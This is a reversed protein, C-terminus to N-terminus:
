AKLILHQQWRHRCRPISVDTGAKRYWGGRHLWVNVSLDGFASRYEDNSRIEGNIATMDARTYFRNLSLMKSCFARNKDDQPGEYSYVVETEIKPTGTPPVEVKGSPLGTNLGKEKTFTEAFLKESNELDENTTFDFDRSQQVSFGDKARGYKAFLSTIVKDAFDADEQSSFQSTTVQKNQTTIGAPGAPTLGIMSRIEDLSMSELVKNAVLPSLSNIADVVENTKIRSESKPLGLKERKEEDSLISWIKDNTIDIGLPEFKQLKMRGQANEDQLVTDFIHEVIEQRTSIYAVQFEEFSDILEDRSGLKGPSSIGVLIPTTIGHRSLINQQVTEKLQQFQKDFESPTLTLVESGHDKDQAFNILTTEGDDGAFKENIKNEIKDQEEPTPIGNFFNIMHAAAFGKKIFNLWFNDIRAETEIATIAALYNPLPYVDKGVSYCQYYYIQSKDGKKKPNFPKFVKWDEAEQPNGNLSKKGSQSTKYWQTTYYLQDGKRNSRIHQFPIHNVQAIGDEAKNYIVELAVGDFMELDVIVKKTLESFNEINNPAKLWEKLKSGIEVDLGTTNIQWGGGFIMRVKRDIITSHMVSRRYLEILYDPYENKEGYYIFDKGQKEVFVPARAAMLKVPILSYKDPAKEDM